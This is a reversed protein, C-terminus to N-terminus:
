ERLSKAARINEPGVIYVVCGLWALVLVGMLTGPPLGLGWWASAFVAVPFGLGYALTFVTSLWSARYDEDTTGSESSAGSAGSEGSEAM